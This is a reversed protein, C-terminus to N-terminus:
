SGEKRYEDAATATNVLGEISANALGWAIERIFTESVAAYRGQGQEAERIQQEAEREILDVMDRLRRVRSAVSQRLHRVEAAENTPFEPSM